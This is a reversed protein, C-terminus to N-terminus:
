LVVIHKAEARDLTVLRGRHKVALALLYVDAM